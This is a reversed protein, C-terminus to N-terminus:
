EDPDCAKYFRTLDFRSNDASFMAALAGEISQYRHGDAGKIAEDQEAFYQKLVEAIAEYHRRTFM